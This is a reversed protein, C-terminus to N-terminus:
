VAFYTTTKKVKFKTELTIGTIFSVENDDALRQWDTDQIHVMNNNCVM